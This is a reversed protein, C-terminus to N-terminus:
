RVRFWTAGGQGVFQNPGQMQSGGWLHPVGPEKDGTRAMICAQQNGPCSICAMGSSNCVQYTQVQWFYSTAGTPRYRGWWRVISGGLRGRPAIMERVAFTGDPKNVMTKTFAPMNQTAAESHRWAGILL